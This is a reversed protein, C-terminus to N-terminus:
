FAGNTIYRFATGSLGLWAAACTFVLMFVGFVGCFRRVMNLSRVQWNFRPGSSNGGQLYYSVFVAAHVLVVAVAVIGSAQLLAWTAALQLLVRPLEVFKGPLHFSRLTQRNEWAIQLLYISIASIAAPVFFCTVNGPTRVVGVVFAVSSHRRILVCPKRPERRTTLSHAVLRFRVSFASASVNFRIGDARAIARRKVILLSLRVFDSVTMIAAISPPTGNNTLARSMM